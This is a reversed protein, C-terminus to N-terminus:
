RANSDVGGSLSMKRQVLTRRKVACQIFYALLILLLCTRKLARVSPILLSGLPPAMSARSFAFRSAVLVIKERQPWV